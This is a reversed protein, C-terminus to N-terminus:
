WLVFGDFVNLLLVFLGLGLLDVVFYYSMYWFAFCYLCGFSFRWDGVVFGVWWVGFCGFGFWMFGCVLVDFGGGWVFLGVFCLLLGVVFFCGWRELCGGVVIGLVMCYCLFLWWVLVWCLTIVYFCLVIIVVIWGDLVLLLWFLCLVLLLVYYWWVYLSVFGVSCRLM